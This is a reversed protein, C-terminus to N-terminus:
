TVIISLGFPVELESFMALSRYPVEVGAHDCNSRYGLFVDVTLREKIQLLYEKRERFVNWLSDIHMHLPESEYVPAMYNWKDHRYPIPHRDERRHSHTPAIGLSRTLEDLDPITGFIRLTARYAFYLPEEPEEGDLFGRLTQFRKGDDDTEDPEIIEM